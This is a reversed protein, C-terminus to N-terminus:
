STVSWTGVLWGQIANKVKSWPGAGLSNLLLGYLPRGAAPASLNAPM